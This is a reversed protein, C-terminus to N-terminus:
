RAPHRPLPKTMVRCGRPDLAALKEADQFGHRTYLAIAMTNDPRVSLRVTEAHRQAAWREVERILHDGVGRGRAAPSVWMSALEVSNAGEVPVGSVMGSPHGDLFAIVNHSGRMTLRARWREERDGDGQWDALTSGFAPGSEALAALRLERWLPWDDPELIRLEVMGEVKGAAEASPM